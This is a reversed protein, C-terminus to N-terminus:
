YLPIELNYDRKQFERYDSQKLIGENWGHYYYFLCVRSLLRLPQAFIAFAVFVCMLGLFVKTFIHAHIIFTFIFLIVEVLFIRKNIVLSRFVTDVDKHLKKEDKELAQTAQIRVDELENRSLKSMNRNSLADNFGALRITENIERRRRVIIDFTKNRTQAMILAGFESFALGTDIQFNQGDCSIKPNDM